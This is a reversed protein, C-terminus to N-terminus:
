MLEVVPDAQDIKTLNTAKKILLNYRQSDGRFVLPWIRLVIFVKVLWIDTLGKYIFKGSIKKKKYEPLLNGAFTFM